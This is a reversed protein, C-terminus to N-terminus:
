AGRQRDLGLAQGIAHSADTLMWVILSLAGLAILSFAFSALSHVMNQGRSGSWRLFVIASLPKSTVGNQINKMQERTLRSLQQRPRNIEDRSAALPRRM